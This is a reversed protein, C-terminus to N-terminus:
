GLAREAAQEGSIFAEDTWQYGWEGYRGCTEIGVDELYGRVRELAAPRDRDFIVNAYPVLQAFVTKIEDDERLLGCRRLDRLVPEICDEPSCDLPRYKQSYYCEVQISGCGAPVTNPSLMHPFSIRTFAYDRDYFYTWHADSLDSRGVGVNITVCTTCALRATAERVDAPAGKILPILEPLPLSSILREYSTERDSTREDFRVTKSQPDIATARHELHIDSADFFPQLYAVFGGDTPYRFHTVYHVDPTTPSLVGRLVEELDPRYLRPGLWDTTMDRAACTHYKEGYEMPFTQAFTRGYSAILWDEYHEIKPPGATQRHQAEIFDRLIDVVLDTPLGHLNCQAPHKIWHGRWHNNVRTQPTEYRGNVNGALLAQIREDKTFSIHPGDDFLFGDREFTATHGGPHDNKEFVPPNIGVERLKHAAGMGAMGAGLIVVRKTM